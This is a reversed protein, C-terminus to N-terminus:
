GPARLLHLRAKGHNREALVEFGSAVTEKLGTEVSVLAHPAIWGREALRALAAEGLGKGYPPDLLIIEHPAPAPGLTEVPAAIVDAAAGLTEINRRLAKIAEADKEVFTARAAGRSLAELGLAGTGAFGDFVRLGEFSGLRSALMSFLAERVRDATPRTAEGAPALLARGRWQGSIIRM